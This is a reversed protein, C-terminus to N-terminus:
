EAVPCRDPDGEDVAATRASRGARDPAGSSRSNSRGPIRGDAAQRRLPPRGQARHFPRWEARGASLRLARRDDRGQRRRGLAPLRQPDHRRLLQHKRRLRRPQRPPIGQVARAHASRVRRAVRAAARIRDQAARGVAVPLAFARRDRGSVARRVAPDAESVRDPEPGVHVLRDDRQRPVLPVADAPRDPVVHGVAPHQFLVPRQLRSAGSHGGARRHRRGGPGPAAPGSQHVPHGASRRLAGVATATLERVLSRRFIM